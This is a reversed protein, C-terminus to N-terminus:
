RTAYAYFVLSHCLHSAALAWVYRSLGQGWNGRLYRWSAFAAVLMSFGHTVLLGFIALLIDISFLNLLYDMQVGAWLLFFPVSFCITFSYDRIRLVLKKREMLSWSLWIVLAIFYPGVYTDLLAEICQRFTECNFTM